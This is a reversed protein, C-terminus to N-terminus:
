LALSGMPDWPELVIPEQKFQAREEDTQADEYAAALRAYENTITYLNM